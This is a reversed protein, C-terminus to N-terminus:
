AIGWDACWALWLEAAEDSPMCEIWPQPDRPRPLEEGWGRECPLLVQARELWRAELDFRHVLDAITSGECRLWVIGFRQEIAGQIGGIIRDLVDTERRVLAKLPGALDGPPYAEHADHMLCARVLLRPDVAHAPSERIASEHVALQAVVVSHEAVSVRTQTQGNWRCVNGLGTAIDTLRFQEPKPNDLDVAGGSVTAVWHKPAAPKPAYPSCPPTHGEDLLCRGPQGHQYDAFERMCKM